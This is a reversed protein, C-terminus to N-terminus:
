LASRRPELARRQHGVASLLARDRRAQPLTRSDCRGLALSRLPQSCHHALVQAVAPCSYLPHPATLRNAAPLLPGCPLAVAREPRMGGRERRGARGSRVGRTLLRLQAGAATSVPFFVGPAAGRWRPMPQWVRGCVRAARLREPRPVGPVCHQPPPVPRPSCPARRMSSRAAAFKDRAELGLAPYCPMGAQGGAPMGLQCM